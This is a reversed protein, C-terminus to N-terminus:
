NREDPLPPLPHIEVGEEILMRAQDPTSSGYIARHEIDGHHMALAQDAFRDGVHEANEAVHRRLARALERMAKDAIPMNTAAGQPGTAPAPMAESGAHTEPASPPAADRGRDRRAVHPAMITKDVKVSGCRPCEILGAARQADYGANDRFWSEFGHGSDCSLAFRIM